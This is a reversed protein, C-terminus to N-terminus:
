DTSKHENEKNNKDELLKVIHQMAQNIAYIMTKFGERLRVENTFDYNDTYTEIQKLLHEPQNFDRGPVLYHEDNLVITPFMPIGTLASVKTWEESYDLNDKETFEIEKENLFKKMKNCYECNKSTFIIINRKM